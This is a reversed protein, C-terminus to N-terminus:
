AGQNEEEARRIFGGGLCLEGKYFVAAQGPTVARQPKAFRAVLEPGETALLRCSVAEMRYRTKVACTLPLRPPAGVWCVDAVRAARAYLHGNREGQAVILRNAEKNKAVVYWAAGTSTSVEKEDRKIGGIGLGRRQGITYHFLGRHQGLRRGTIDVIEGPADEIYRAIFRSFNREGIFCLGTSDKKAHNHLGLSRALARVESKRMEGLPMVCNTFPAAAFLFYTQCKDKDRATYLQKQKATRDEGRLCAYHGTAMVDAGLEAVYHRLARFKIHHNCMVDPNPTLGLRLDRLFPEFVRKKYLDSFEVSQCEIKLKHCARQVDLWDRVSACEPTRDDDRWNRMYVGVVDYGRDRMLAAVVSSDVGGSMAVAAKLRRRM